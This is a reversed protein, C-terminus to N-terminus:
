AAEGETKSMSLSLVFLLVAGILIIAPATLLSYRIAQEGLTAFPGDNLAGVLLPGISQGLLNFILLYLAAGTARVRSDLLTILLAFLCPTIGQMFVTELALGIHWWLPDDSLLLMLQAPIMGLAFLMPAWALWRRDFRMLLTVAIGAGITAGVGVFGKYLGLLAGTAEADLGHVRLMFSPLWALLASYNTSVMVGGFCLLLFGPSKLIDFSSKFFGDAAAKPQRSPDRPPEKVLLLTLLAVMLGILGMMPYAPRWGHNAAVWGILPYFLMIALPGGAAFVAMAMVRWRGRFMDGILASTPAMNSAEGVGLAMRAAILHLYTMAAGTLATVASWFALGAAIINRRNTRDALWAIPVGAISYVIVFAPGMLFGLATDSLAIEDQIQPLLLGLMNRDVTNLGVIGSLIVLAVIAGLGPRPEDTEAQAAETRAAQAM